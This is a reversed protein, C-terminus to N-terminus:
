RAEALQGRRLRRMALPGMVGSAVAQTGLNAWGAAVLGIQPLLVITAFLLAAGSAAQLAALLWVQQDLWALTSYLTVVATFPASLGVLRLLASGHVAYNAGALALLPYAGFVCVVLAGVVVVTWLVITRKLLVRSTGHAGVLEVCFSFAVNWLLLTIGMSILWPLTFYAVEATGLRWAVLLPMLQFTATACLNGVFEGAVFSLLRRRGPLTGEITALAPLVRRFLLRNIVIAAVAAPLVWAITIGSGLPLLTLLPLLALRTLATAVNEVPVWPALRLATLVADELTFIALVIVAVSFLAGVRWGGRVISASLGSSVYIITVVLATVIVALYGRKILGSSLRGAPPLLRVFVNTLNLQAITALLVLAAIMAAARGVVRAPELHAATAWFVFGLANTVVTATMLSVANVTLSKRLRPLKV